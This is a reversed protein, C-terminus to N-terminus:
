WCRSDQTASGQPCLVPKTRDLKTDEARREIGRDICDTLGRRVAEDEWAEPIRGKYAFTALYDCVKEDPLAAIEEPPMRRATDLGACATLSLALFLALARTM